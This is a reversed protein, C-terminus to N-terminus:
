KTIDTRSDKKDLMQLTAGDVAQKKLREYFDLMEGFTRGYSVGGLHIWSDDVVEVPRPTSHLPDIVDIQQLKAFRLQARDYNKYLCSWNRGGTDLGRYFDSLFNLPLHHVVSLDYLCYGAWLQWGWKSINPIGYFPQGGLTKRFEIKEMPILDHDIFGFIRPRLTRVVNHFIWTMAIGHSRNPHRTPNPPLALYLINRDRCSREIDIRAQQRRSNDFVILTGDALHRAAMRTLWDLAWPQEYAVVLGVNEGRLHEANQLFRELTKPQLTLYVRQVADNRLQKFFHLLPILRLWEGPSYDKLDRM